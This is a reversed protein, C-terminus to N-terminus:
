QWPLKKYYYEEDIISYKKLTCITGDWKILGKRKIGEYTFGLKEIVRQSQYNNIDHAIQIRILNFREFGQKILEKCAEVMYGNGWYNRNLVYGIEAVKHKENLSVFDCMGIMKEENRLVIAYAEPVKKEIRKYFINKITDRTEELNVHPKWMLHKTVEKDSAYEFMDKADNINVPRLILRNTEITPMKLLKKDM